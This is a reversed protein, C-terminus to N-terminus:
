NLCIKFANAIGIKLVTLEKQETLRCAKPKDVYLKDSDNILGQAIPQDAKTGAVATGRIM